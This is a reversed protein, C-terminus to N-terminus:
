TGARVKRTKMEQIDLEARISAIRSDDFDHSEPEPEGLQRTLLLAFVLACVMGIFIMEIM